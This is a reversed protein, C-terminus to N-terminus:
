NMKNVALTMRSVKRAATNKHYVGKSAASNIEGTAAALAATAAAKTVGADIANLAPAVYVVTFDDDVGKGEDIANDLSYNDANTADYVKEIADLKSDKNIEFKGSVVFDNDAGLQTAFSVAPIVVSNGDIFKAIYNDTKDVTYTFVKNGAGGATDKATITLTKLTLDAPVNAFGIVVDGATPVDAITGSLVVSGTTKIVKEAKLDYAFSQDELASVTTAMASVAVACAAIAAMTKKMNM